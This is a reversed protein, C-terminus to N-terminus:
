SQVIDGGLKAFQLLSAISVSRDAIKELRRLSSLLDFYEKSLDLKQTILKLINKEIMLYLDDTKSEEVIVRQYKEEVKSHEQEDIISIATKTSLLASKLLPITYELITNTNLEESYSRRFMKAFDKTNAATRVIENTIKLFAVMRRLDRAEPTYLALTTIILNDIENSKVLFKKESVEVNKLNEIKRENLAKLCVELAEVIDLGLKEVESKILKLKEEYPKLM